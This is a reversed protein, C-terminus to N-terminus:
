NFSSGGIDLVVEVRREKGGRGAEALVTGAATRSPTRSPAAGRSGNGAVAGGSGMAQRNRHERALEEVEWKACDEPTDFLLRWDPPSKTDWAGLLNGGDERRDLVSIM